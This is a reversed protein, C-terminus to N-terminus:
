GPGADGVDHRSDGVALAPGPDDAPVEITYAAAITDRYRRLIVAMWTGAVLCGIGSVAFVMPVGAASAVIGGLTAGVPIGGWVITRYSGQVRGFLKEPILAQRLSMTLVNGAMVFFASLGYLSAGLVANHTLSMAFLPVPFLLSTVTLTTTRSVKRLVRPTVMGGILAGVGTGLMVLGYAAKPIHVVDLAYLVVVANAMSQMASTLGNVLTLQRIFSQRWLWRVGDALESRFSSRQVDVTAAPKFQGALTAMLVAAAVYAATDVVFPAVAVLAFLLAGVPSGFFTEAGTEVTVLLGNGRDLQERGIVQPLMARAASDYLTETVGIAFVVIYLLVISDFGILVAIALLGTVGACLVNARVMVRRRDSRDVLTGAPLAFLLWPLYGLSTIGSILLPNRTLSAALLPLIAIEVGNSLSTAASSAFLRWFRSGLGQKAADSTMLHGELLHDEQYLRAIKTVLACRRFRGVQGASTRNVKVEAGLGALISGTTRGVIGAYQRRLSGSSARTERRGEYSSRMLPQLDSPPM